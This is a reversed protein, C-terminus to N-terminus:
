FFLIVEENISTGYKQNFWDIFERESCFGFIPELLKSNCCLKYTSTGDVIHWQKLFIMNGTKLCFFTESDGLLYSGKRYLKNFDTQGVFLALLKEIKEFKEM